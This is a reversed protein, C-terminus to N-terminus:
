SVPKTSLNTTHGQKHHPALRVDIHELTSHSHGVALEEEMHVTALKGSDDLFNRGM